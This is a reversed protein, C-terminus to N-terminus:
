APQPESPGLACARAQLEWVSGPAPNGASFDSLQERWSDGMRAVGLGTQHLRICKGNALFQLGPFIWWGSSLLHQLPPLPAWPYREYFERRHIEGDGCQQHHCMPVSPCHFWPSLNSWTSCNTPITWEATRGIWWSPGNQMSSNCKVSEEFQLVFGAREVWYSWPARVELWLAWHKTCWNIPARLSILTLGSTHNPGEASQSLNGKEKGLGIQFKMQTNNLADFNASYAVYFHFYSVWQYKFGAQHGLLQNKMVPSQRGWEAKWDTMCDSTTYIDTCVYQVHTICGRNSNIFSHNIDKSYMTNDKMSTTKIRNNCYM